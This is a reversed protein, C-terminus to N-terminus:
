ETALPLLIRMTTGRGAESELDITGGHAEIISKAIALGLGAGGRERAGSEGVQYFREFILPQEAPPIGPGRDQVLFELQGDHTSCALHVSEGDPSHRAANDVLILVAQEIREPDVRLHGTGAFSTTLNAGHHRAMAEAPKTLRNTLWQVPVYEPDIAPSGADSRALFLLDNVLRTMRTAESHIETLAQTQAPDGPGTLGIEANGRILTLPTRLEHSADAIFASKMRLSSALGRSAAQEAANAAHLRHLVRGTLLSLVIGILAVGGLLAILITRERQAADEVDGLSATTLQEGADDIELAMGELQDIRTLGIASASNFAVPESTFLVISPRFADHYTAALARIEDPQPVDLEAVGIAELQDIHDLLVQYTEDFEAIVEDTPGSFVINRHNHRLDLVAVRIDDGLGSVAVDYQIAQESSNQLRTTEAVGFIAVTGLALLLVLISLGAFWWPTPQKLREPLM